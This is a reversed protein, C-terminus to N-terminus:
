FDGFRDEILKKADDISCVNADFLCYKVGEGKVPHGISIYNRSTYEDYDKFLEDLPYIGYEIFQSVDLGGFDDEFIIGDHFLAYKLDDFKNYSEFMERIGEHSRFWYVDM